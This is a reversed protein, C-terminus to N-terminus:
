KNCGCGDGGSMTSPNYYRIFKEWIKEALSYDCTSIAIKLANWVTIFNEFGPLENCKEFCRSSLTSVYQMGIEYMKKWDIIVGTDSADDYGCPLTSVSSPLTGDCYVYVYFMGNDFDSIGFKDAVRSDNALLCSRVANVSTQNNTNDYIQIAKDSPVGSTMANKYYDVYIEKIYMGSYIGLGEIYCEVLLSQKDDAIRLENFIVM